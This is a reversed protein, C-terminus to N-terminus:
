TVTGTATGTWAIPTAGTDTTTVLANAAVYPILEAAANALSAILLKASQLQTGVIGQFDTGAELVDYVQKAFGTGSAVGSPSVVVSGKVMTM